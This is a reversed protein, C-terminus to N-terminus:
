NQSRSEIVKFKLIEFHWDQDSADTKPDAYYESIFGYKEHFRMKSSYVGDSEQIRVSAILHHIRHGECTSKEWRDRHGHFIFQSRATCTGNHIVIKELTYGFPGAGHRLTYQYSKPEKLLWNKELDHLQESSLESCFALSSFFLIGFIILKM